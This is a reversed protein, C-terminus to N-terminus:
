QNGCADFSQRVKIGKDLANFVCAAVGALQPIGGCLQPAFPVVEVAGLLRAAQTVKGFGGVLTRPVHTDKPLPHAFRAVFEIGDAAGFDGEAEGVVFFDFLADFGNGIGVAGQLFLARQRLFLQRPRRLEVARLEGVKLALQAADAM